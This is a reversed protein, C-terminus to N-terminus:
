SNSPPASLPIADDRDGRRATERALYVSVVPLGIPDPGQRMLMDRVETLVQQGRDREADTQRHVLALGLVMKALTLALDDSSREANEVVDEIERLARDDVALVGSPIGAGYVYGAAAAYSMPDASRAM